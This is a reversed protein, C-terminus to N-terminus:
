WCCSGWFCRDHFGEDEGGRALEVIVDTEGVGHRCRAFYANPRKGDWHGTDITRRCQSALRDLALGPDIIPIQFM